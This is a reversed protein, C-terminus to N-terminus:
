RTARVGHDPQDTFFGDMGADLFVRIEGDLDGPANPDTGSRFSTPLFQNELRFTWGHVVLGRRHAEALVPSPATLNGAADRPILVDKCAGIGDAYTRIEDLGAPTVLDAYTRPDGASALDWPRGSCNILQALPVDTMGALRRLNGVEFSQIIVPAGRGDLGHARLERVLPEELPLGISAFYSPHKTEPYVGVPRDDCTRSRKALDLVEAFTPVDLRGDLTRNATRVDPLREKARLTRLEALTFDETFWGTIATGDIPKTTRRSAFEPRSAVDTTGSIENEHRAVLVGDKTSVLDPEIYDACQRIALEYAALTHEPRYGSAGRHGIVISDTRVPRAAHRDLSVVIMETDDPTGPVRAANGPYNNDNAVVLRGDPLPAVVEVSQFPFSFPHGLGFAGDGGIGRHNHLYLLDVLLEKAAFGGDSARGSRLDVRYLKKTVSRDGDFDDREILVLRGDRDLFADGIVNPDQDTRYAWRRGTYARTRTDLEYIWRRRVVPDDTFAGEVIPYLFRADPSAAMAEFGRSQPVRATEGPALAPNQPSKGDAFPIPADLVEGTPGVHLVFPGFEEGIWFSGDPARVVSEIDFDGGTLLREPTSENVIPFPIRRHPDRLSVHRLVEIAGARRRGRGTDWDPRVLYLRLLFDASNGKAGFGNDPLGWYTGDGNVVLGSFGPIVQGPFPGTRGNARTALAGSPPGPAQFDAPLTARAELTPVHPVAPHGGASAPAAPAALGAAATLAAVAVFRRGLAPSRVSRIPRM